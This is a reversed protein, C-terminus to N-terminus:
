IFPFSHLWIQLVTALLFKHTMLLYISIGVRWHIDCFLHHTSLFILNVVLWWIILLMIFVFPNLCVIIKYFRKDILSLLNRKVLGTQILIHLILLYYHCVLYILLIGQHSWTGWRFKRVKVCCYIRCSGMWYIGRQGYVMM